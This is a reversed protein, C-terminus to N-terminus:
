SPSRRAAPPRPQTAWRHTEAVLNGLTSEGGPQRSGGVLKARTFPAAVEGLEVDPRLQITRFDVPDLFNPNELGIFGSSPLSGTRDVLQGPDRQPLGWPAVQHARDHLHEVPRGAQLAGAVAGLQRSQTGGTPM